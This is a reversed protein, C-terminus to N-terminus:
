KTYQINKKIQDPSTQNQRPSALRHSSTNTSIRYRHSPQDSGTSPYSMGISQRNLQRNQVICHTPHEPTQIDHITLTPLIDVEEDRQRDQKSAEDAKKKKRREQYTHSTSAHHFSNIPIKKKKKLFLATQQGHVDETITM